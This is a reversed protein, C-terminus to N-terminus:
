ESSQRFLLDKMHAVVRAADCYICQVTPDNPFDDRVDTECGLGFVRRVAWIGIYAALRYPISTVDCTRM